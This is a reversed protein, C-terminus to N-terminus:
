KACEAARDHSPLEGTIQQPYLRVAVERAAAATRPGFGLLYLGDLSILTKSAAAPTMKFAPKDFIDETTSAHAGRQMVMIADPAAGIVAEDNVAKYGEFSTMPNIAGALRIIGDAATGRGAVMLRDAATSLTFMVKAPRTIKKEIQELGDFDAQVAAALCEGRARAGAVEAVLKIKEIVGIRDFRDAVNVLPVGAAELVTIAEKPGAGEISLVVSPRMSLVGEPSLQRMYGVNPKEKLVEVPYVSTVDVAAIQNSLGLAYLIETVAGGIAVIRSSDNITVTRGAADRVTVPAGTAVASTLLLTACALSTSLNRRM